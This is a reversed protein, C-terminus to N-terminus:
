NFLNFKYGILIIIFMTINISMIFFLHKKRDNYTNAITERILANTYFYWKTKSGIGECKMGENYAIVGSRFVHFNTTSFIVNGNPKISDIIQKSFRMNQLTNISKNEIIINEESIGKEILYKKMAEAESIPEDNGKGGSPIYIIDKKTNIKQEKAFEIAKDVRNKLTRSLKGNELVRAGLIIVFDKDYKPNNKSAKIICFLNALTLCYLYSLIANLEIDIFKKISLSTGLFALNKTVKFIIQSFLAGLIIGIGFIIGWANEWVCGEEICLRISSIISLIAIIAILPLILIAFYSFSSLTNNYISTITTANSSTIVIYSHRVINTVLFLALGLDILSAYTYKKKSYTEKAHLLCGYTIKTLYAILLLHITLSLKISNTKDITALVTITALLLLISIISYCIKEKKM